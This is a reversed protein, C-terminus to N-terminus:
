GNKKEKTDENYRSSAPRLYQSAIDTVTETDTKYEPEEVYEAFSGLYISGKQKLGRKISEYAEKTM